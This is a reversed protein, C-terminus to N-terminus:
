IIISACTLILDLESIFCNKQLAESWKDPYHKKFNIAENSLTWLLYKPSGFHFNLSQMYENYLAFNCLGLELWSKEGREFTQINRPHSKYFEFYREPYLLIHDFGHQVGLEAAIHDGSFSYWMPGWISAFNGGPKLFKKLRELSDDMKILHELVSISILLDAKPIDSPIPNRLDVQFFSVEVEYKKKITEKAYSWAKGYNFYDCGIIHTPNFYKASLMLEDGLGCGFHLIVKPPRIKRSITKFFIEKGAGKQGLTITDPKIFNYDFSNDSLNLLSLCKKNELKNKIPYITSRLVDKLHTAFSSSFAEMYNVPTHDEKDAPTYEINSSLRNLPHDFYKM